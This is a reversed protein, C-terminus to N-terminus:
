RVRDFNVWINLGYKVDTLPPKGQHLSEDHCMYHSTCNEWFLATGRVPKFSLGLKPFATGADESADNLYVFFTYQRQKGGNIQMYEPTFWDHHPKFEQGPTYKVVQMYEINEIPKGTLVAVKEEIERLFSYNQDRPLFYTSSTRDPTVSSQGNVLVESKNFNGEALKIIEQCTSDPIFNPLQTLKIPSETERTGRPSNLILLGVVLLM